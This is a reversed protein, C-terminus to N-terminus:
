YLTLGFNYIVAILNLRLSFRKGQNDCRESLIHVGAGTFIRPRYFIHPTIFFERKKIQGMNPRKKDKM